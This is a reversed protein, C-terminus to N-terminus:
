YEKDISQITKIENAEEKSVLQAAFLAIVCYEAASHSGSVISCYQHDKYFLNSRHVRKPVGDDILWSIVVEKATEKQGYDIAEFISGGWACYKEIRSKYTSKDSGTHSLLGKVSIDNYHDQASKTLCEHSVLEQLPEKIQKLFSIAERYKPFSIILKLTM